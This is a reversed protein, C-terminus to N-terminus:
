VGREKKSDSGGLNMSFCTTRPELTIKRCDETKFVRGIDVPDKLNLEGFIESLADLVIYYGGTAKIFDLKKINYLNIAKTPGLLSTKYNYIINKLGVSLIKSCHILLISM